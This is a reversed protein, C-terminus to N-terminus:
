LMVRLIGKRADPPWGFKDRWKLNVGGFFDIWGTEEGSGSETTFMDFGYTARVAKNSVLNYQPPRLTAQMDWGHPFVLVLDIDDPEDICGMVFSGDVIVSSGCAAKKVAEVYAELKAFLNPRRDSKQFKGFYEKVTDMSVDHVGPLLLKREDFVLEM